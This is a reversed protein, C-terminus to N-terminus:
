EDEDVADGEDDVPQTWTLYRETPHLLTSVQHIRDGISWVARGKDHMAWGTILGTAVEGLGLMRDLEDAVRPKQGHLIKVDALELMDKAIMAAQSGEDGVSLLDSPKHMVAFQIDGGEDGVGRSFRLDADYSKVAELGLRFQKWSEDRVVIRVDERAAMERMGRGWSNVCTLAIGVAEDGLSNLRSLSLSQIPADWDINITTEADFLGQLRGKVLQRLANRLTRTDDIFTQRSAYRCTAILEDSPEDLAAWLHPITTVKLRTAGTSWGTLAELAAQCVAQEDPGFPVPNAGVRQSGVLGGLLTLWRGFMVQARRQAQEASLHEWGNILPGFDLANIRAPLGPGVAIPEVGLFRCLREYEDKPDGPIFTKYGAFQMMRLCFAKTTGSKGVGPKGMSFINHNTVPISPDRVWGVPDAYFKGGSEEDAGILAGTPPLGPSPIWPWLVAAQDSTMRYRAVPPKMSAVFGRGRRPVGRGIHSRFLREEKVPDSPADRTPLDHGFDRLLSTVDRGSARRM